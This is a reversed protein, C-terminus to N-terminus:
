LHSKASTHKSIKRREKARLADNRKKKRNHVEGGVEKKGNVQLVVVGNRRHVSYAKDGL